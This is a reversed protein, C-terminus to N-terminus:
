NKDAWIFPHFGFLKGFFREISPLRGGIPFHAKKSQIIKFGSNKLYKNMESKYFINAIECKPGDTCHHHFESWSFYKWGKRKFNAVHEEWLLSQRFGM